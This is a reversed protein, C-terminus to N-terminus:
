HQCRSGHARRRHGARLRHQRDRRDGQARFIPSHQVLKLPGLNDAFRFVNEM